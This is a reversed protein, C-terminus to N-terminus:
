ATALSSPIPEVLSIKNTQEKQVHGMPFYDQMSISVSSLAAFSVLAFTDDCFGAFRNLHGM